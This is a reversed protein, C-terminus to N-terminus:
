RANPRSPLSTPWMRSPAAEGMVPCPTAGSAQGADSVPELNERCGRFVPGHSGENRAGGPECEGAGKDSDNM